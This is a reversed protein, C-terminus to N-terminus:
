TRLSTDPLLAAWPATRACAGPPKTSRHGIEHSRFTHGRPVATHAAARMLRPCGGGGLEARGEGGGTEVVTRQWFSMCTTGWSVYARLASSSGPLFRVFITLFRSVEFLSELGIM